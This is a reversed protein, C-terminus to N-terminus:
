NFVNICLRPSFEYLHRYSKILGIEEIYLCECDTTTTTTTTITRTPPPTPTTTTTTMEPPTIKKIYITSNPGTIVLSFAGTKGPSHTTTIFAYRQNAQLHAVLYFPHTGAGGRIPKLM